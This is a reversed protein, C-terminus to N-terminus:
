LTETSTKKKCWSNGLAAGLGDWPRGLSARVGGWSRASTAGLGGWAKGLDYLYRGLCWSGGCSGGIFEHSVAVSGRIRLSRDEFMAPVMSQMQTVLARFLSHTSVLSLKSTVFLDSVRQDCLVLENPM